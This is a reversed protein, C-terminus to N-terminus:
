IVLFISPWKLTMWSSAKTQQILCWAIKSGHHINVNALFKLCPGDRDWISTPYWDSIWWFPSYWFISSKIGFRQLLKKLKQEKCICYTATTRVAVSSGSNCVIMIEITDLYIGYKISKWVSCVVFYTMVTHILLLTTIDSIRLLQHNLSFYWCWCLSFITVKQFYMSVAVDRWNQLM